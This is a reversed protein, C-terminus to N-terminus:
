PRTGSLPVHSFYIVSLYKGDPKATIFVAGLVSTPKRFLIRGSHYRERRFPATSCMGSYSPRAFRDPIAFFACSRGQCLSILMPNPKNSGSGSVLKRPHRSIFINLLLRSVSTCELQELVALFHKPQMSISIHFM